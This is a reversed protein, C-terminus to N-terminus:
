ISKTKGTEDAEEASLHVLDQSAVWGEAPLVNSGWEYEDSVVVIEHASFRKALAELTARM